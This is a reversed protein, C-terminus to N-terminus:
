PFAVCQSSIWSNIDTQQVMDFLLLIKGMLCCAYTKPINLWPKDGIYGLGIVGITQSVGILSIVYASDDEVYRKTLM